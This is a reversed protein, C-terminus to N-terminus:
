RYKPYDQPLRSRLACRLRKALDNIIYIYTPCPNVEDDIYFRVSGRVSADIYWRRATKYM